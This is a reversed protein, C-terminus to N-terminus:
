VWCLVYITNYNHLSAKRGGTWLSKRGVSSREWPSLAPPPQHSGGPLEQGTGGKRAQAPPDQALKSSKCNLDILVRSQGQEQEMERDRAEGAWNGQGVLEESSPPSVVQGTPKTGLSGSLGSNTNSHSLPFLWGHIKINRLSLEKQQSQWWGVRVQIRQM